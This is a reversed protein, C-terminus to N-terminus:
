KIRIYKDTGKFDKSNFNFSNDNTFSITGKSELKAGGYYIMLFDGESKTKSLIGKLEGEKWDLELNAGGLFILKLIGNDNYVGLKYNSTKNESSFLEFVGEYKSLTKCTDLYNSFNRYDIIIPNTKMRLRNGETYIWYKNFSIERDVISKFAYRFVNRYNSTGTVKVNRTFSYNSGDCFVFDVTLPYRGIAGFDRIFTGVSYQVIVFDCFSKADNSAFVYQEDTMVFGKELDTEVYDKFGLVVLLDGSVKANGEINKYIEKVDESKFLYVFRVGSLKQKLTDLIREEEAEKMKAESMKKQSIGSINLFFLIPILCFLKKVFENNIFPFRVVSIAKM